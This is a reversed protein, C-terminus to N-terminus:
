TRLWRGARRGAFARLTGAMAQVPDGGSRRRLSVLLATAAFGTLLLTVAGLAWAIWAVVTVGGAMAPMWQVLWAVAPELAAVMANLAGRFEPPVWPAIWQALGLAQVLDPVGTLAGANAAAWAAAAHLLWVGLSWFVPLSFLGAWVLLLAM